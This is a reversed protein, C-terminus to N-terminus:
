KGHDDCRHNLLPVDRSNDSEDEYEYAQPDFQAVFFFHHVLLEGILVGGIPFSNLSDDREDKLESLPASPLLSGGGGLRRRPLCLLYLDGRRVLLRLRSRSAQDGGIMIRKRHMLKRGTTVATDAAFVYSVPTHGAIKATAAHETQRHEGLFLL